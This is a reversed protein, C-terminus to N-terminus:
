APRYASALYMTHDVASRLALGAPIDYGEMDIQLLELTEPDIWFAGRAAAFGFQNGNRVSLAERHVDYEYRLAPRGDTTVRDAYSIKTWDNRFVLTRNDAFDGRFSTGYGVMDTPSKLEFVSNGLWSFRDAGEIHALELHIRDLPRFQLEGPIWVSREISDVCVYNPVSALDGMARQKIQQLLVTNQPSLADETQAGAFTVALLM